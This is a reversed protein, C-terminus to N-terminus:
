AMKTKVLWDSICKTKVMLYVVSGCSLIHKGNWQTNEKRGNEFEIIYRVFFHASGDDITTTISTFHVCEIGPTEMGDPSIVIREDTEEVLRFYSKVTSKM